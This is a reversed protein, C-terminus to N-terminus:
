MKWDWEREREEEEGGWREMTKLPPMMVDEVARVKKQVVVVAYDHFQLFGSIRSLKSLLLSQLTTTM